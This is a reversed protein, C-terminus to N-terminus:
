PPGINPDPLRISPGLSSPPNWLPPAAPDDADFAYVSNHMTAVYVVNRKRGAINIGALYLPQAYVQGDVGKEFIKGFRAPNVNSTNLTTESLNAGTRGNDNHQTTTDVSM